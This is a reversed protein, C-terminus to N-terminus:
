PKHVVLQGNKYLDIQKTTTKQYLWVGNVKVWIDTSDAILHIDNKKGDAGTKTTTMDYHQDVVATNGDPKIDGLTTKSVKSNDKPVASLEQLMQDANESHGSADISTFDSALIVRMKDADRDAMASKIEAYRAELVQRLAGDDAYSATIGAGLITWLAILLAACIMLKKKLTGFLGVTKRRIGEIGNKGDNEDVAQGPIGSRIIRSHIKM